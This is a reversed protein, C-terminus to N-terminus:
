GQDEQSARMEEAWEVAARARERTTGKGPFCECQGALHGVVGLLLCERHQAAMRHEPKGDEGEYVYPMTMGQDGEVFPEDCTLCCEGIPTDVRQADDLFLAPWRQGFFQNM